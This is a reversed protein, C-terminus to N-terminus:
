IAQIAQVMERAQDPDDPLHASVIASFHKKLQDAEDWTEPLGDFIKWLQGPATKLNACDQTLCALKAESPVAAIDTKTPIEWVFEVRAAKACAILKDRDAKSLEEMALSLTQVGAELAEALQFPRYVPERLWFPLRRNHRELFETVTWVKQMRQHFPEDASNEMCLADAGANLWARAQEEPSTQQCDCRIKGIFKMRRGSKALSQLTAAIRPMRALHACQAQSFPRDRGLVEEFRNM